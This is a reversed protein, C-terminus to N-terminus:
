ADGRLRLYGDMTKEMLVSGDKAVFRVTREGAIRREYLDIRECRGPTLVYTPGYVEGAPLEMGPPLLFGGDDSMEPYDFM